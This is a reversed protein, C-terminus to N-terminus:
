PLHNNYIHKSNIMRHYNSMFNWCAENLLIDGQPTYKDAIALRITRNHLYYIELIFLTIYSTIHLTIYTNGTYTISM